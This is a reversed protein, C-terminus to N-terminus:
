TDQCDDQKIAYEFYQVDTESIRFFITLDKSFRISYRDTFGDPKHKGYKCNTHNYIPDNQTKILSSNIKSRSFPQKPTSSLLAKSDLLPTSKPKALEGVHDDLNIFRSALHEADILTYFANSM